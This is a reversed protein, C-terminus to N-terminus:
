TSKVTGADRGCKPGAIGPALLATSRCTFMAPQGPPTSTQGSVILRLHKFTQPIATFEITDVRADTIQDEILVLDGGGGGGGGEPIQDELLKLM